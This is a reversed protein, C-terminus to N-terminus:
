LPRMPTSRRALSLRLGVLLLVVGILEAAGFAGAGNEGGTIKQGGKDYMVIAPTGPGQVTGTRAQQEFQTLAANLNAILSETAKEFGEAAFKRRKRDVNL